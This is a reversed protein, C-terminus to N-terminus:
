TSQDRKVVGTEAELHHFSIQAKSLTTSPLFQSASVIIRFTPFPREVKKQFDLHIPSVGKDVIKGRKNEREV